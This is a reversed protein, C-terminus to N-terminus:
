IVDLIKDYRSNKVNQFVQNKIVFNLAVPLETRTPSVIKTTLLSGSSPVKTGSVHFLQYM